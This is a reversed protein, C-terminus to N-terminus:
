ATLPFPPPTEPLAKPARIRGDEMAIVRDAMDLIRNDHTVMLVAMGRAKARARILAVIERGTKGDLAATPEDALLLGPAGVLARAIAVRQRQGGSLKNQTKREHGALGVEALAALCRADDDRAPRAGRAELGMRTNELATLAPHLNHAQFVFGIRRRAAVMASDRARALEMGLVVVSGTQVARLAGVLTLITTKGCGSPGILFVVEGPAVRLEIDFLIRKQDAGDGFAHDLGRVAVADM